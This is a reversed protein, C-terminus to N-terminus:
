EKLLNRIQSAVLKGKPSLTITTTRRDEETHELRILDLATPNAKRVPGFSACHRSVTVLPQGTRSAIESQSPIQDSKVIEILTQLQGLTFDPNYSRLLECLRLITNASM